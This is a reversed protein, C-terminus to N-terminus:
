TSTTAEDACPRGQSVLRLPAPEGDSPRRSRRHQGAVARRELPVGPLQRVPTPVSPDLVALDGVIVAEVSGAEPVAAERAAVKTTGRKTRAGRAETM